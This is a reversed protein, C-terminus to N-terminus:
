EEYIVIKDREVYPRIHRSLAGETVLDVTRHLRESLQRQLRALAFLGIPQRFAVLIDVDSSSTDDRRAVSGFLAVSTAGCPVLIPLIAQRLEDYNDEAV